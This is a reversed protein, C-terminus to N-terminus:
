KKVTLNLFTITVRYIINKSTAYNFVGTRKITSRIKYPSCMKVGSEKREKRSHKEIFRHVLLTNTFTNEIKYLTSYPKGTEVVYIKTGNAAM